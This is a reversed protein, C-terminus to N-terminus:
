LASPPMATSPVSALTGCGGRVGMRRTRMLPTLPSMVLLSTLPTPHPHSSLLAPSHKGPLRKATSLLVRSVGSSVEEESFRDAQTMLKEKISSLSSFPDHEPAPGGQSYVCLDCPQHPCTPKPSSDQDLPVGTFPPFPIPSASCGGSLWAPESAM